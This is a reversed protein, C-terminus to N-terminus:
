MSEVIDRMIEAARHLQRIFAAAKEPSGATVCVRIRNEEPLMISWLGEPSPMVHVLDEIPMAGEVANSQVFVPPFPRGFFMDESLFRPKPADAPWLWNLLEMVRLYSRGRLMDRMGAHMQKTAATLLTGLPQQQGGHLKSDDQYTAAVADCFTAVAPMARQVADSRGTHYHAASVPEWAPLTRGFFLRLALQFTLDIVGKVAVRRRMLYDTGFEDLHEQVYTTTEPSTYELYRRRLVSMHSEIEPTTQLVAEELVIDDLKHDGNMDRKGRTGQEEIAKGIVETLRAPTTGDIAGHETIFGSRGNAHVYFQLVKDFWRNFGDGLYGQRAREEPTEPSSNDLCLVFMATDIVHFYEVNGSSIGELKTRVEAWTDRDDTTLIGSWVEHDAVRAVIAEFTRQLHAFSVDQGKEDQLMVKFVRGQRLVALHEGTGTAADAKENYRVMKDCGVRPVRVSHFLWGWRWTCEPRGAVELPEVTGAEMARKFALTAQTIVAAREAQAHQQRQPGRDGDVERHSAMISRYPAIPVRQCLFRADTLVDNLWGHGPDDDRARSSFLDALIRRAPGDPARLSKMDQQIVSLQEAPYLHANAELWFDLSDDLDPLPQVPLTESHKCCEWGHSPTKAKTGNTAQHHGNVGNLNGNPPNSPKEPNGSPVGNPAQDQNTSDSNLKTVPNCKLEMRSVVLHALAIISPAGSLEFTQLPTAFTHKIWNKLEISVLSDVGLAAIPQDDVVDDGLFAAFKDVLAQRVIDEAEKVSAAARAEAAATPQNAVAVGNTTGTGQRRQSLIHDFMHDGLITPGLADELTDREFAMLLQAAHDVRAQSGMAYELTALVDGFTVSTPINTGAAIARAIQESGEVAGVNITTYHTISSGGAATGQANMTQCFADQFANGAAYNSQSVLGIMSNVSSLMVFFDTTEPSCFHKQMNLTGQVKPKVATKWDEIEMYEMPHDQLVLASQIIGRVPPLGAIDQVAAQVAKESSIDCRVIHLKGGLQSLAEELPVREQAQLDRRTLAVIHGAGKEALFRCIKKGIDGVGGSVIYTGERHLHLAPPKPRAARVMTQEDATLVVKGVHKRASMVRFADEIQTMPYTTVPYPSKLVGQDVLDFIEGLMRAAADPRRLYLRGVDVSAFTIHKEFNAMNLQSRGHIDTKGIEVFTGFPAVCDWSDILLQGSLSNLVVDVGNGQTANMIYKKLHRSNSSFIHSEPIGYQDQILKRKAPSSVTAYIEAGIHKAIQIAAQGVGGSAAHVLVTQGKELRASHVLGYWATYYVLAIAAADVFSVSDPIRIAGKSIVRVPNGYPAVFLGIVRDGPQWLSQSNSGVSTVVGAAVGAMGTGPPMQGLAILVDKFNLGHARVQVEIHDPGLPQRMEDNDVFRITNLLGPIQVDFVLPRDRDLYKCEVLSSPSSSSSATPACNPDSSERFRAFDDDPVVRPIRLEGDRIAYEVEASRTSELLPWFSSMAIDTLIQTIYQLQPTTLNTFEIEDQIDITILRLAPDEHRVVRAMGNVMNKWAATEATPRTQHFSVWLINRGHLLLQKIRAFTEPTPDLLFPHEASDIVISLQNADAATTAESWVQQSCGVGRESLSACIGAGLVEQPSDPHGLLVRSEMAGTLSPLEKAEGRTVMFSSIDRSHGTHAPIVLNTGTFGTRRLLGDWEPVTLLPGDRRGDESMWWGELAGVIFTHAAAVQTLEMLVLRGGPKLLKRVNGLTVDMLPTAHLVNAAIILDFSEAEYGQPLPDAGIDLTQFEMQGTWRGFKQRAREFFGSSIDTYTYKDLLLRGRREIKQLLPMTAGGTGAGIELVKMNPNKHVLSQVYEEMQAYHNRFLMYESYLRGLLDDEVLLELPDAKGTLIDFYHPGMRSLILGGINNESAQAISRAEDEDSTITELFRASESQDWRLMWDLLKNLHTNCAKPSGAERLQKLARRNFISAVQENLYLQDDISPKRKSAGDSGSIDDSAGLRAVHKMFEDQSIHDVDRDWAVRYSPKQTSSNDADTKGIVQLRVGSGTAVALLTGDSQKQYACFEGSGVQRSEPTLRIAVMIEAGPTQDMDASVCMEGVTLPMVPAAMCERRFVLTVLQLMGDFTSPHFIHPQMYQGPMNSEIDPIVIRALGRSPGVQIEKMGRFTPGYAMGSAKLEDYIAEPDIQITSNTQIDQMMKEAAAKTLHGVGDETTGIIEDHTPQSRAEVTEVGSSVLGSCNEMWSETQSDYSLVRFYEWSSDAHKRSPSITLQLEVQQSGTMGADEVIVVPKSFQVDRFSVDRFHGATKRIHFLQKMAETVMALYGAGPFIVFGDIVHDRLWPLTNLSLQHRWRPEKTSSTEDLLGLLDHYPFPRFRRAKSLRSETWYSSSHDWPYTPLNEVVRRHQSSPSGSAFSDLDAELVDLQVPYGMEFAKGALTLVSAMADTGRVLCSSYAYSLPAGAANTSKWKSLSQRLPGLLASHPGVEVLLNTPSGSTSLHEAVLHTAASFKVQSVLNSVWYDPGFDSEKRSGTVSSYFAVNEKPPGHSLSGLSSLYSSAVAHMHHSHYATDVQLRRNFISAGELIGQLEQIADLDGSVTCSEPSNVCAVTVKGGKPDLSRIREQLTTEGEGVALMAGTTANLGKAEFSYIGRRYAAEMAADLSLAGAAYAAAIEGSSHGCVADPRVGWTDLLDVLAIQIATTCPQSLRSEGLRSTAKDRSLEEVLDWDCGLSKMAQNCSAMSSAFIQSGKLLERGMAFWQAGQGTFIFAVGVEKAAKVPAVKSDQLMDALSEVTSAVLSCRWALRSRRTNLTYALDALSTTRGQDSGLWQQLKPIWSGLSAESNASLTILRMHDTAGTSEVHNYSTGNTGNTSPPPHEYAELIAHANTGGYGFSNVSVRRPGSHGEPTLSTLKLPITIGREELRLTPKPNIFNLQPPIQNKKLVMAAKILGAIGSVAETHGLNAKASGITLTSARGAERGFVRSISSVEANDGAVTGTGHAEVYLTDLPDLGANKYVSRVLAAQAEANPLLLGATKGDQNCEAGVVVAHIPDGDALARDLRKLVLVGVGEGRGYGEGRDDFTYCRGHKNTLASMAISQDPSVYLQSAGALALTSEDAMLSRCAQHLAVLGGSCGTDLANSSGRLDMFYSIRNALIAEGTGVIHLRHLNSMDKYGMRDYGRESLAMHVSTNSGRLSELPLGANEVAEYTVELLLRQQPDMAAAESAPIGFFRADFVEMDQHLFHAHSFNTAEKADPDKHYFSKWDWRDKPVETWGDRGEALLSWLSEPSDVGGPLRCAMGIIAIRSEPATTSM